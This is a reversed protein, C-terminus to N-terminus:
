REEGSAIKYLQVCDEASCPRPNNAMPRAVGLAKEAMEPYQDERIYESIIKRKKLARLTDPLDLDMVLEHLGEACLLARDRLSAWEGSEFDLLMAARAYKEPAGFASFDVVYPILLANAVGHGVGFMGGLPYALAHCAGVGANALAIGAYYSALLMESRAQLNKGNFTVVRLNRGIRRLAEEAFMDSFPTAQKSTYAELAHTLADMGTAATQFPPLSLTLEPDLLCYEAYLADDNIGGKVGDSKRILVSTFTVESGTGATTPILIKPVGPKKVLGLGQYAAASGQNTILMSVAKAVDLCSGGGLGVVLQCEHERALEAVADTTEVSPEPEVGAFVCCEIGAQQLYKEVREVYGHEEMSADTVLVGRKVRLSSAIEGVQSVAGPGFRAKGAVHMHAIM